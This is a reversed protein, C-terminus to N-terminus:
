KAKSFLSLDILFLFCLKLVSQHQLYAIALWLAVQKSFEIKSM